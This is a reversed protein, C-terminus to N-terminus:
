KLAVAGLVATVHIHWAARDLGRCASTKIGGTIAVDLTRALARLTLSPLFFDAM